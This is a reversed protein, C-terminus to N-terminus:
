ILIIIQKHILRVITNLMNFIYCLDIYKCTYYYLYYLSLLAM